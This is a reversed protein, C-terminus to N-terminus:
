GHIWDSPVVGRVYSGLPEIQASTTADDYATRGNVILVDPGHEYGLVPRTEKPADLQEGPGVQDVEEPRVVGYTFVGEVGDDLPKM